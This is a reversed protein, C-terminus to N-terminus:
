VAERSEPPLLIPIGHDVPYVHQGDQSALAVSGAPFGAREREEPTAWRLPQRTVPCVLIPLFGEIWATEENVQNM